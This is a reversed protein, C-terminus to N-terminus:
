DNWDEEQEWVCWDSKRLPSAGGEARAIYVGVVRRTGGIKLLKDRGYVMQGWLAWKELAKNVYPLSYLKINTSRSEPSAHTQLYVIIIAGKNEWKPATYIQAIIYSVQM